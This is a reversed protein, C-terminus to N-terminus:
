YAPEGFDPDEEDDGYEPGEEEHEELEQMLQSLIERAESPDENRHVAEITKALLDHIYKPEQQAIKAVVTALSSGKPVIQLFARWLHPGVQILWPEDEIRDAEQYVTNLQDADMSSLGHQSLLEMVGKVLEQLLVPFNFAKAVVTASHNDEKEEGYEEEEYGAFEDEIEQDKDPDEDPDEDPHEVRSTGVVTNRLAARTISAFDLLWYSNVAGGTFQQFLQLLQPSIAELEDKVLHHLTAMNHLAAGQTLANLTIRKNIQGRLHENDQEPLDDSFIEEEPDEQDPPEIHTTLTANLMEPPVGWAQAVAKIALQELEAAHPQELQTEQQVVRQATQFAQRMAQKHPLDRLQPNQEILKELGYKFAKQASEYGYLALIPHTSYPHDSKRINKWFNVTGRNADTDFDEGLPRRAKPQPDKAPRPVKWPNFGPKQGPKPRPKSPRPPAKPPATAPEAAKPQPQKAPRPVKWPSFDPKPRSPKPPAKPPTKTPASEFINADTILSAIKKIMDDNM